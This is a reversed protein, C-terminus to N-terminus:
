DDYDDYEEEDAATMLLRRERYARHSEESTVFLEDFKRMGTGAPIKKGV